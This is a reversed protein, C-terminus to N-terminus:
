RGKRWDYKTGNDREICTARCEDCALLKKGPGPFALRMVGQRCFKCRGHNRSHMPHVDKKSM